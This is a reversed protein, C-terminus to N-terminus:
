KGGFYEEWLLYLVITLLILLVTVGYYFEVALSLILILLVTVFCLWYTLREMKRKNEM